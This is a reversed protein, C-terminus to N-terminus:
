FDGWIDFGYTDYVAGREAHPKPRLMEIRTRWENYIATHAYADDQMVLQSAAYYPLANQVMEPGDLTDDDGPRPPLLRPNCHYKLTVQGEIYPTLIYYDGVISYTTSHYVREGDVVLLGAPDIEYFDDPLDFRYLGGVKVAYNFDLPEFALLPRIWSTIFVLADNLLGPIRNLYDQQGNYSAPITAGGLSYQNIIQLTKDRAEGYTM